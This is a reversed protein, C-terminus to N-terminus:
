FFDGFSDLKYSQSTMFFLGLSQTLHSIIYRAQFTDTLTDYSLEADYCSLM